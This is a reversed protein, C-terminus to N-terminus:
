VGEYPNRVGGSCLIRAEISEMSQAQSDTEHNYGLLHLMGHVLMHAWHAAVEKGQQGAERTVVPACIVLDGLPIPTHVPWAEIDPLDAPFSLVNTAQNKDRYHLNMTRSEAEDVVRISVEAGGKSPAGVEVNVRTVWAEMDGQSPIDSAGSVIQIDAIVGTNM